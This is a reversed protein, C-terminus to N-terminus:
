LLGKQEFCARINQGPLVVKGDRRGRTRGTSGIRHVRRGNGKWSRTEQLGKKRVEEGEPRDRGQCAREHHLRRAVALLSSLIRRSSRRMRGSAEVDRREKQGVDRDNGRRGVIPHKGPWRTCKCHRYGRLSLLGGAPSGGRSAIRRSDQM